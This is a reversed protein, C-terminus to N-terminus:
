GEDAEPTSVSGEDQRIQEKEMLSGNQTIRQEFYSVGEPGRQEFTLFWGKRGSYQVSSLRMDSTSQADRMVGVAMYKSPTYHKKNVMEKSEDVFHYKMMGAAFISIVGGLFLLVSAHYFIYNDSYMPSTKRSQNSSDVVSEDSELDDGHPGTSSLHTELANNKIEVFSWKSKQLPIWCGSIEASKLVELVSDIYSGKDGNLQIEFVYGDDLRPHGQTKQLRYTVGYKGWDLNRVTDHIEELVSDRVAKELGERYGLILQAAPFRAAGESDFEKGKSSFLSKMM